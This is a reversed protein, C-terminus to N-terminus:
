GIMVRESALQVPARRAESAMALALTLPGIRGVFMALVIVLKGAPTLSATIGTSLGCTAFASVVEFVIRMPEQDETLLLVFTFASVMALSLFAVGMARRVVGGDLQRDFLRAARQGRMEARFEAFAAALTTTKIGGGTSGPSAGVFMVLCTLMLTAAHVAGYDITNFGATRMSISSFLAALVRAHWPLGAMSRGWELPLVVLAVAIVLGGSTALTVRAHLSLREPRRGRLWDLSRRRLEDIVPFGIGGVVVLAAITACIPWSEAFGALNAHSLSFGANCFASVAHFLAWWARDGAGAIPHADDPGRTIEPHAGAFAYLLLAGIAEFFLTYGVIKLLTQRLASLSGADIMEVLVASQKVRLKRGALVAFSASLVMIGLGGIQALLAIVVEGFRSYTAGVDNVALGTVCVASTATFLGDLLSADRVDEVAEPLSLLFGGVFAAIGFSLVMLRAPHDAADALFRRARHGRALVGACAVVLAVVAFSRYGPVYALAAETGEGAGIAGILVRWKEGLAFLLLGINVLHALRARARALWSKPAVRGPDTRLVLAMWPVALVSELVTLPVSAWARIALAFDIVVIALAIVLAGTPGLREGWSRRVPAGAPLAVEDILSIRSARSLREGERGSREPNAM